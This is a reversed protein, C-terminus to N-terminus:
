LRLTAGVSAYNVLTFNYVQDVDAGGELIRYGGRISLRPTVRYGLGMFVDEARGQPGVLADGRILVNVWRHIRWFFAFNILPVFGTNTTSSSLGGGALAIEADRIKATLGAGLTLTPRRLLDYRYTLRYSDFRYTASLDTGEPFVVDEFSIPFDVSGSADITLPAFLASITHRGGFSIGARLRYFWTEDSELDESLSFGTGGDGPVRVDNYGSVAAGSELDVFWGAHSQPGALLVALPLLLGAGFRPVGNRPRM